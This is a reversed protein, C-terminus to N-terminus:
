DEVPVVRGSRVLERAREAKPAFVEVLEDSDPYALYWSSPRSRNAVALGGEELKETRAGARKAAATVTKFPTSQPYTGVTLFNPRPDGPAAGGDLYRVYVSGDGTRTLEYTAGEPAPGVWYVPRKLTKSLAQLSEPTAAEPKPRAASTPGTAGATAAGDDDGRRLLAFLVVVALVIAAGVAFSVWAPREREPDSPLATSM